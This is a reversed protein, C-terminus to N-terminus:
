DAELGYADHIAIDFASAVILAALQPAGAEGRNEDFQSQRFPILTETLHHGLGM